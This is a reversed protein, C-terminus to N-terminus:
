RGVPQTGHIECPTTADDLVADGVLSHLEGANASKSSTSSARASVVLSRAGSPWIFRVARPTPSRRDENDQPRGGIWTCGGSHGSMNHPAFFISLEEIGVSADAPGSMTCRVVRAVPAKLRLPASKAGFRATVAALPSLWVHSPGAEDLGGWTSLRVEVAAPSAIRFEFGGELDTDTGRIELLARDLASLAGPEASEISVIAALPAGDADVVQGHLRQLPQSIHLTVSHKAGASTVIASTGVMSRTSGTDGTTSFFTVRGEPVGDPGFSMRGLDDSCCSQYALQLAEGREVFWGGGAGRIPRGNADVLTLEVLPARRLKVMREHLPASTFADNPLCQPTYGTATFAVWAGVARDRDASWTLRFRGTGDTIAYTVEAGCAPFMNGRVVSKHPGVACLAVYVGQIGIGAQEDVVVGDLSVQKTGGGELGRTACAVYGTLVAASVVM